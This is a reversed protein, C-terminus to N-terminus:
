PKAVFFVGIIIIVVGIWRTAPIQEHLIWQAAFLGFVYSLSTLPYALSFDYKRLIMVWLVTGSVACVGSLMLYPNLLASKFFAWTWSFAGFQKVSIKLLLQAALLLLSQASLTAILKFM